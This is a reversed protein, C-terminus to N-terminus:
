LSLALRLMREFSTAREDPSIGELTEVIDSVTLITLAEFKHLAALTYLEATEMEVAGVGYEAFIKWAAADFPIGDGYFTDSSLINEVNVHIGLDRASCQAAWLLSPTATPAFSMGHFRRHNLASDSCAAQALVISRLPLRDKQLSGASGIRIIRKVGYNVVLEHVYISLSPMGMGSGQVSVKKDDDTLGTFGSMNRVSNYKTVKRLFADAAWEARRPDGALLVTEAIDGPKAENHPTSM